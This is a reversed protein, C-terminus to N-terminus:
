PGSHRQPEVVASLVQRTTLHLVGSGASMSEGIVFDVGPCKSTLEEEDETDLVVDRADTLSVDTDIGLKRAAAEISVTM